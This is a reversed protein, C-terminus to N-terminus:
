PCAAATAGNFVQTTNTGNLLQVERLIDQTNVGGARDVNYRALNDPLNAAGSNLAAVIALVDQTNSFADLNTNAPHSRYQLKQGPSTGMFTITTCQLAPIVGSLTIDFTTADVLLVATV